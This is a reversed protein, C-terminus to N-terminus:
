FRALLQTREGPLPSRRLPRGNSTTTYVVVMGKRSMPESADDAFREPDIVLRSVPFVITAAVDNPLSFLEHTYRDTVYSRRSATRRGGSSSRMSAPKVPG